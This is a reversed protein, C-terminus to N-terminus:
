PVHRQADALKPCQGTQIVHRTAQWLADQSSLVVSKFDDRVTCDPAIGNPYAPQGQADVIATNIVQHRYGFYLPSSYGFPKGCTPEGIVTIQASPVLQERIAHIFLEAASCTAPSTLM